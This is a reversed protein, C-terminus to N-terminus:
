QIFFIRNFISSPFLIIAFNQAFQPAGISSPSATHPCHPVGTEFTTFSLASVFAADSPPLLLFSPIATATPHTTTTIATIATIAFIIPPPDPYLDVKFVSTLAIFFSSSEVITDMDLLM